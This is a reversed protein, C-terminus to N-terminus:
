KPIILLTNIRNDKEKEKHKAANEQQHDAAPITQCLPPPTVVKCGPLSTALSSVMDAPISSLPSTYAM